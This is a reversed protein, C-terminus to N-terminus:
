RVNTVEGNRIFFRGSNLVKAGFANTGRYACDARYCNRETLVLKCSQVSLSSPDNMRPYLHKFVVHRGRDEPQEGCREEYASQAEAQRKEIEEARRALIEHVTEKSVGFRRSVRKVAPGAPNNFIGEWMAKYAVEFIRDARKRIPTSAEEYQERLSSVTGGDQELHVGDLAAFRDALEQELAIAEDWRGRRAMRRMEPIQEEVQERDEELSTLAERAKREAVEAAVEAQTDPNEVDGSDEEEDRDGLLATIMCCAGVTAVSAIAPGIQIGRKRGPKGM